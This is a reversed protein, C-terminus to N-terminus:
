GREVWAGGQALSRPVNELVWAVALTQEEPVPPQGDRFFAIIHELQRTYFTGDNMDLVKAGSPTTAVLRFPIWGYGNVTIHGTRGDKWELDVRVLKPDHQTARVRRLQPGFAAVLPEVQHVAYKEWTAPGEMALDFLGAADPSALYDTFAPTFRLASTSFIKVRHQHAMAFIAEGDAVSTAFTKDIFTPKGAPFVQEALSRHYEQNDPSLIMVGDVADAVARASDYWPVQNEAAWQRSSEEDMGWAAAAVAGLGKLEGRLLKLYTNTHFNNLKYDVFGIRM